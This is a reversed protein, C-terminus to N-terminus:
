HHKPFLLTHSHSPSCVCDPQSPSFLPYPQTPSIVHPRNLHPHCSLALLVISTHGEPIVLGKQIAEVTCPDVHVADTPPAPCCAHQCATKILSTSQMMERPTAVACTTGYTKRFHPCVPIVLLDRIQDMTPVQHLIVHHAFLYLTLLHSPM